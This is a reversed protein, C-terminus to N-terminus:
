KTGEEQAKKARYRATCAARCARCSRRGDGYHTNKEDFPHGNVCTQAGRFHSYHTGHRVLDRNNEAVTGWALNEPVNNTANGDIHRVVPGDGQTEGLFALAVLRHVTVRTVKGEKSLGVALYGGRGSRTARMVRGRTGARGDRPPRDLSRVQGDNSVEYLGEYGPVPRWEISEM